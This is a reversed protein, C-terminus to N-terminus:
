TALALLNKLKSPSFGSVKKFQLHIFRGQQESRLIGEHRKRKCTKPNDPDSCTKRSIEETLSM